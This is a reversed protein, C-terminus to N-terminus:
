CGCRRSRRRSRRGAGAPRARGSRAPRAASRRRPAERRRAPRGGPRRRDRAYEGAGARADRVSSSPSTRAAAPSAPRSAPTQFGSAAASARKLASTKSADPMESEAAAERARPTREGSSGSPRLAGPADDDEARHGLRAARRALRGRLARELAEGARDALLDALAGRRLEDLDVVAGLIRDVRRKAEHERRARGVDRALDHPDGLRDGLDGREVPVAREVALDREDGAGRAADAGRDRVHERAVASVDDAEVHRRELVVQVVTTRWIPPEASATSMVSSSAGARM